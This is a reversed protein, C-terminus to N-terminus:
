SKIWKRYYDANRNDKDNRDIALDSTNNVYPNPYLESCNSCNYEPFKSSNDCLYLQLLKKYFEGKGWCKNILDKVEAESASKLDNGEQKVVGINRIKTALFPIADYCTYWVLCSRIKKMLTREDSNPNQPSANLTDILKNFLSTGIAEQIYTEEASKAFPYVENIDINGSLPSNDKLYKESIFFATAM